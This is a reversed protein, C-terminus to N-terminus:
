NTRRRLSSIISDEVPNASEKYLDYLHYGDWYDVKSGFNLGMM